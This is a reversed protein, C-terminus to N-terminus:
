LKRQRYSAVTSTVGSEFAITPVWDLLSKAKASNLAIRELEGPRKEGYLPKVEVGVARRVTEFVVADTIERGWGLNFLQGDGAGQLACLNASVVDAVHLYDRTKTGDGFITPQVQRLLQDAFIAVVGAEGHPDQRPGYVNGYRFITHRLGFVEGYFALYQEGVHKSLGYASLPRVPHREDLPLATSEPYIASTSAFVVKQTGHRVCCQLLNIMGLINVDADYEPEGMARRVDTQAAHHCVAEPRERSFIENLRRADRIDVQYFAAAEHLNDKNGTSLNDVVVPCDGRQVLAHVIHSGIFGAGGTVLIKM